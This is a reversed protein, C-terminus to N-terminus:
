KYTPCSIGNEKLYLKVPDREKKLKEIQCNKLLDNMLKDKKDESLEHSTKSFLCSSAYEKLAQPFSTNLITRQMIQVFQSDEIELVLQEMQAIFSKVENHEVFDLIESYKAHQICSPYHLFSKLIKKENSSIEFHAPAAVEVKPEPKPTPLSVPSNDEKHAYDKYADTISKADTKLGLRQALTTVRELAGLSNGLPSLVEFFQRLYELKQESIEPIKEPFLTSIQYDVFLPAEDILKRVALQGEAKIFDDPDKHPAFNLYYPLIGQKMMDANVRKAAEFGAKDNDLALYFKDAQNSLTKIQNDSMAVGMLAVTNAFGNQHLSIADMNGETLLVSKQNRIPNKALNFGYLIYSKNYVFSEQSNMYKAKQYEKTARSGFGRVTGSHDCIPFIIRESFTDFYSGPQKSSKRIIGIKVAM